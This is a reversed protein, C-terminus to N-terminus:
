CKHGTSRVTGDGLAEGMVSTFENVRNSSSPPYLTVEYRNPRSVGDYGFIGSIIENLTGYAKEDQSIGGFAM